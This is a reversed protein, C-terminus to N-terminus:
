TQVYLSSCAYVLLVNVWTLMLPLYICYNYHYYLWLWIWIWSRSDMLLVDFMSRSSQLLLIGSLVSLTAVVWISICGTLSFFRVLVDYAQRRPTRVYSLRKHLGYEMSILGRDVLSTKASPRMGGGVVDKLYPTRNLSTTVPSSAKSPGM